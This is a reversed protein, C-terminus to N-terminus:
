TIFIYLEIFSLLIKNHYLQVLTFRQILKRLKTVIDIITNISALTLSTITAIALIIHTINM